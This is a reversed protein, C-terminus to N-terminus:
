VALWKFKERVLSGKSRYFTCIIPVIQNNSQKLKMMANSAKLEM